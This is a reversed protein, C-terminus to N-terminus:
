KIEYIFDRFTLMQLGDKTLKYSCKLLLIGFGHKNRYKRSDIRVTSRNELKGDLIRTKINNNANDSFIYICYFSIYIYVFNYCQVLLVFRTVLTIM